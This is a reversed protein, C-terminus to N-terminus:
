LWVFCIVMDNITQSGAEQLNLCLWWGSDLCCLEIGDKVVGVVCFAYFYM